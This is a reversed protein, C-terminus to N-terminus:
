EIEEIFLALAERFESQYSELSDSKSTIEVFRTRPILDACEQAMTLPHIADRATGIVLSPCNLRAIDDRTVDPGDSAIAILLAQTDAVCKRDFLGLLSKLNDPADNGLRAATDSMLFEARAKAPEHISLLRAVERNPGLNEPAAKDIWAPRAIVLASVLDPRKVAIRLAIAAGMSIGGVPVPGVDLSEIFSALDDAFQAISFLSLDGGESLGHGRCELTLCTRGIGEPFVEAPQSADGCLGHQFVFPHGKGTRAVSLEVGDTLFVRRQM